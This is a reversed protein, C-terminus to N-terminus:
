KPKLFEILNGSPDRVFFREAGYDVTPNVIECGQNQFFSRWAEVNEVTLAFHARTQPIDENWPFLHIQRGDPLNYWIIGKESVSLPMKASVIGSINEYFARAEAVNKVHITVHHLRGLKLNSDM